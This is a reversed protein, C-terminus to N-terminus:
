KLAIILKGNKVFIICSTSKPTIAIVVCIFSSIFSPILVTWERGFFKSCFIAIFAALIEVINLIIFDRYITGGLQDAALRLGYYCMTVSIFIFGETITLTAM